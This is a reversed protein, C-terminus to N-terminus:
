NETGSSVGFFIELSLLVDVPIVKLHIGISSILPAPLPFTLNIKIM